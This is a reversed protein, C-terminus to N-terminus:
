MKFWWYVVGFIVWAGLAFHMGRADKFNDAWGYQKTLNKQRNYKSHVKMGRINQKIKSRPAFASKGTVVRPAFQSLTKAYEPPKNKNFHSFSGAIGGRNEELFDFEAVNQDHATFNLKTRTAAQM